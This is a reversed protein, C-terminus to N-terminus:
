PEFRRTRSLGEGKGRRRRPGRGEGAMRRALSFRDRKCGEGPSHRSLPSCESKRIRLSLSQGVSSM